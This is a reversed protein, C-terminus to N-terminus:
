PRVNRYPHDGPLITQMKVDWAAWGELRYAKTESLAKTVFIHRIDYKGFQSPTNNSGALIRGRTTPTNLSTDPLSAPITKIGNIRGHVKTGDHRDGVIALGTFDTSSDLYNATGMRPAFRSDAGVIERDVGRYNVGSGYSFATRLVDATANQRALVWVEGPTTGNALGATTALDMADDVGDGSVYRFPGGGLDLLGSVPRVAGAATAAISAVRDTWTPVAGNATDDAHWWALLDTGLGTIPEWLAGLIADAICEAPLYRNLMCNVQEISPYGFTRYDAFPFPLITRDLYAPSISPDIVVRFTSYVGPYEPDSGTLWRGTGVYGNAALLAILYDATPPQGAAVKACISANYLDCEDPIGYDTAWRDLDDESAFCFWDNLSRCLATELRSWTGAIGYFIKKINTDRDFSFPYTGWARGQPLLGFLALYSQEQDPCPETDTPVVPTTM